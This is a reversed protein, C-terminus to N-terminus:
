KFRTVTQEGVTIVFDRRSLGKLMSFLRANRVPVSNMVAEISENM